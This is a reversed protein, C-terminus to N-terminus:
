PQHQFIDGTKLFSRNFLNESKETEDSDKKEEEKYQYKEITNELKKINANDPFDSKFQTFLELVLEENKLYQDKDAMLIGLYNEIYTQNNPELDYLDKYIKEADKINGQMAYIYAVSAKISSNEPDRKLIKEYMPLAKNWDSLLAYCKALKYYSSWYLKRNKMAMEYYTAARNYEELKYYTDGINSYEVYLNNLIASDEGPIPIIKNSVCSSVVFILLLSVLSTSVLKCYSKM